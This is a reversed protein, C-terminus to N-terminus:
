PVRSVPPIQEVISQSFIFTLNKKHLYQPLMYVGITSHFYPMYTIITSIKAQVLLKMALDIYKYITKDERGIKETSCISEKMVRCYVKLFGIDEIINIEQLMNRDSQRGIGM